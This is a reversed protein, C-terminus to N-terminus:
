EYTWLEGTCGEGIEAKGLSGICVRKASEEEYLEYKRGPKIRMIGDQWGTKHKRKSKRVYLVRFFCDEGSTATVRQQAKASVNQADRLKEQADQISRQSDVCPQGNVRELQKARPMGFQSSNYQVSRLPERGPGAVSPEGTRGASDVTTSPRSTFAAGGQALLPSKFAKRPPAFARRKLSPEM